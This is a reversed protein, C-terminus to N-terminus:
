NEQMAEHKELLRLRASEDLANLEARREPYEEILRHVLDDAAIIRDPAEITKQSRRELRNGRRVLRSAEHDKKLSTLYESDPVVSESLLAASVDIEKALKNLGPWGGNSRCWSEARRKAENAPVRSKITKAVPESPAPDDLPRESLGLTAKVENFHITASEISDKDLTDVLQVQLRFPIGEIDDPMWLNFPETRIDSSWRDHIAAVAVIQEDFSLSHGSADHWPGLASIPNSVLSGGSIAEAWGRLRAQIELRTQSGRRAFEYVQLALPRTSISM